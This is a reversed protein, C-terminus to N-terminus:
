AAVGPLAALVLLGMAAAAAGVAELRVVRVGTAPTVVLAAVLTEKRRHDWHLAATAVATV